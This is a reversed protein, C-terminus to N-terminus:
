GRDALSGVYVMEDNMSILALKQAIDTIAKDYDEYRARANSFDTQEKNIIIKVLEAIPESFAYGFPLNEDDKTIRRPIYYVVADIAVLESLPRDFILTSSDGIHELTYNLPLGANRQEPFRYCKFFEQPTVYCPTIDTYCDDQRIVNFREKGVYTGPIDLEWRAAPKGDPNITALETQLKYKFLRYTDEEMAVLRIASNIASLIFTDTYFDADDSIQTRVDDIFDYLNAGGKFKNQM